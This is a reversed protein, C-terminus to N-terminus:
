NLSGRWGAVMWWWPRAPSLLRPAAQAVDEPRGIRGLGEERALLELLVSGLGGLGILMLTPKMGHVEKKRKL